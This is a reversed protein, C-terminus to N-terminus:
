AGVLAPRWPAKRPAPAPRGEVSAIAVVPRGRASETFPIANKRLLDRQLEYKPKGGKSQRIDTLDDVESETMLIRDSM